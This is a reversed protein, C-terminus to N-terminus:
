RTSDTTRRSGPNLSQSVPFRDTLNQILIATDSHAAGDGSWARIFVVCWKDELPELAVHVQRSVDASNAIAFGGLPWWMRGEGVPLIMIIPWTLFFAPTLVAGLIRAGPSWFTSVEQSAMIDLGPNGYYLSYGRGRLASAATKMIDVPSADVRVATEIHEARWAACGCAFTALGVAAVHRTTM